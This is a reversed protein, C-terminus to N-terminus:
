YIYRIEDLNISKFKELFEFMKKLLNYMLKKDDTKISVLLFQNDKNILEVSYNEAINRVSNEDAVTEYANNKLSFGEYATLITRIYGEKDFSNVYIKWENEENYFTSLLDEIIKDEARLSIVKLILKYAVYVADILFNNEKFSCYGDESIALSCNTGNENLLIQNRTLSYFSEDDYEFSVNYKESAFNNLKTTTKFNTLITTEENDEDFLSSMLATFSEKTLEDFEKSIIQIKDANYNFNIGINASVNKCERYILDPNKVEVVEAGLPLLVKDIFFDGIGGDTYIVFKLGRLPRSYDTANVHSCFKQRLIEAYLKLNNDMKCEIDKDSINIESEDILEIVEKLNENTLHGLITMFEIKFKDSQSSVASIYIAGTTNLNTISKYLAPIYTKGCDYIETKNSSLAKFVTTKIEECIGSADTGVSVSIESTERVVNNKIWENFATVLRLVDSESMVVSNNESVISDNSILQKFTEKNVPFNVGRM